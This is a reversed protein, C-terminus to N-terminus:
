KSEEEKEKEILFLVYAAIKIMDSFTLNIQRHFGNTDETTVIYTEGLRDKKIETIM